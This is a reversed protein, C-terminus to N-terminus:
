NRSLQALINACPFDELKRLDHSGQAMSVIVIILSMVM